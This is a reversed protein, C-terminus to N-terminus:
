ATQGERQEELNGGRNEQAKQVGPKNLHPQLPPHGEGSTLAWGRPDMPALTARSAAAAAVGRPALPAPHLGGATNWLIESVMVGLLAETGRRDRPQRRRALGTYTNAWQGNMRCLLSSFWLLLNFVGSIHVEADLSSLFNRCSVSVFM